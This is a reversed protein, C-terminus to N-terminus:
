LVVIDKSYIRFDFGEKELYSSPRDIFYYLKYDGQNTIAISFHVCGKEIKMSDQPSDVTGSIWEDITTYDYYLFLDNGLADIVDNHICFSMEKPTKYPITDMKNIFFPRISKTIVSDSFSQYLNLEGDFYYNDLTLFGNKNFSKCRGHKKDQRYYFDNKIKKSLFFEKHPGNRVNDLYNSITKVSGNPYYTYYEGIIKGDVRDFKELLTELSDKINVKVKGTFYNKTEIVINGNEIVKRTKKSSFQWLILAFAFTILITKYRTTSQM